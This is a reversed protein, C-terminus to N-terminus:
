LTKGAYKLQTEMVGRAVFQTFLEYGSEPDISAMLVQLYLDLNHQTIEPPLYGNQLLVLIALARGVRKHAGNWAHVRVCNLWLQAAKEIPHLTSSQYIDVLERLQEPIETHHCYSYLRKHHFKSFDIWGEQHEPNSERDEAEWAAPADMDISVPKGTKSDLNNRMRAVAFLKRISETSILLDKTRLFRDKNAFVQITEPCFPRDSDEPNVLSAYFKIDNKQRNVYGLFFEESPNMEKYCMSMPGERFRGPEDITLRGARANLENMLEITVNGRPLIENVLNMTHVWDYIEALERCEDHIQITTQQLNKDDLQEATPLKQTLRMKMVGYKTARGAAQKLAVFREASWNCAKYSPNAYIVQPVHNFPTAFPLIDSVVVPSEQNVHEIQQCGLALTSNMLAYLATSLSIISLLQKM